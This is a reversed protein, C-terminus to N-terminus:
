NKRINNKKDIFNKINSSSKSNNSNNSSQEQLFKEYLEHFNVPNLSLTRFGSNQTINAVIQRLFPFLLYASDVMLLKSYHQKDIETLNFIGCYEMEIIFLTNNTELIKMDLKLSVEFISSGEFNKTSVSVNNELKIKSEDIQSEWPAKILEFSLDKLYQSQVIINATM